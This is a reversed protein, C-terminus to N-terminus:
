IVKTVEESYIEIGPIALALITEAKVADRVKSRILSEDVVLFARPVAAPNVVRFRWQKSLTSVVGSDARTRALDAPKGTAMIESRRAAGEAEMAQHLLEGALAKPEVSRQKAALDALRQAESAAAQRALEEAAAREAAARAEAAARERAAKARLYVGMRAEIKRKWEDLPAALGKFFGDVVRGANLHPAKANERTSEARKLLIQIDKVVDSASKLADESDVTDPVGEADAIRALKAALMDSYVNDLYDRLLDPDTPAYNSGLGLRTNEDNM